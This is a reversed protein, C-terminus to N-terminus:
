NSAHKQGRHNKQDHSELIAIKRDHDQVISHVRDFMDLKVQMSSLQQKIESLKEPLEEIKHITSSIFYNAILAVLSGGLLTSGIEQWEM